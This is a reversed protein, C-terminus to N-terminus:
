WKRRQHCAPLLLASLDRKKGPLPKPKSARNKKKLSKSSKPVSLSINLPDSILEEVKEGSN